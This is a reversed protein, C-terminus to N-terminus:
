YKLIKNENKLFILILVSVRIKNISCTFCGEGDTFGSFWNDNLSPFISTHKVEVTNLIIRGKTVWINFGKIFKEFQKKRRPLILNGNFLHILIEIEKKNQTVYRSTIKSQPIVKGFGLIEQIYELVYIDISSQTIVFCLDGRNNVIFSGEGEAFGIFWTLFKKSPLTNGSLHENYKSYFSEINFTCITSYNTVKTQVISTYFAQILFRSKNIIQIILIIALIYFVLTKILTNKFFLHQFLIPDGLSSHFYFRPKDAILTYKIYYLIM